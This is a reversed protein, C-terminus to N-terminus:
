PDTLYSCTLRFVNFILLYYNIGDAALQVIECAGTSKQLLCMICCLSIMCRTLSTFLQGGTKLQGQKKIKKKKKKKKKKYIWKKKKKKKKAFNTSFENKHTLFDYFISISGGREQRVKM